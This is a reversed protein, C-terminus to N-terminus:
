DTTIHYNWTTEFPQKSSELHSVTDQIGDMVNNGIREFFAEGNRSVYPLTISKLDVEYILAHMHSVIEGETEVRIFASNMFKVPLTEDGLKDLLAAKVANELHQGSSVHDYVLTVEGMYPQRSWRFLLYENDKKAYLMIVTRLEESVKNTATSIRAALKQGKATLKYKGRDVKEILKMSVLGQLHYAFANAPIDRPTLDKVRAPEQRVLVMLSYQQIWSLDMVTM